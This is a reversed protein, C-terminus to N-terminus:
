AEEETLILMANAVIQKASIPEGPRTITLNYAGIGEGIRVHLHGSSLRTVTLSFRAPLHQRIAKALSQPTM